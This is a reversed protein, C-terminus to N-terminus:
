AVSTTNAAEPKPRAPHGYKTKLCSALLVTPASPSNASPAALFDATRSVDADLAAQESALTLPTRSNFQRAASVGAPDGAVPARDAAKGFTGKNDPSYGFYSSSIRHRRCPAAAFYPHSALKRAPQQREPLLPRRDTRASRPV